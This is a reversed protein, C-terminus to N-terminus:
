ISQSCQGAPWTVCWQHPLWPMTAFAKMVAPLRAAAAEAIKVDTKAHHLSFHFATAPRVWSVAPLQMLSSIM